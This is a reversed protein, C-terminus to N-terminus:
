QQEGAKSIDEGVAVPRQPALASRIFGPVSLPDGIARAWARETPSGPAPTPFADRCQSLASELQTTYGEEVASCELLTKFTRLLTLLAPGILPDRAVLLLESPIMPMRSEGEVHLYRREDGLAGCIGCRHRATGDNTPGWSPHNCTM